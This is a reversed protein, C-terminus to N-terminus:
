PPAASHAALASLFLAQGEMCPLKISWKFSHTLLNAKFGNCFTEQTQIGSICGVEDALTM